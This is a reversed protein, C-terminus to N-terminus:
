NNSTVTDFHSAVLKTFIKIKFMQTSNVSFNHKKPAQNKFNRENPSLLFHEKPIHVIRINNSLYETLERKLKKNKFGNFSLSFVKENLQRKPFTDFNNNQCFSCKQIIWLLWFVNYNLDYLNQGLYHIWNWEHWFIQEFHAFM